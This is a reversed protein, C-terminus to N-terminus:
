RPLAAFLSAVPCRFGAVVEGGDLVDREALLRQGGGRLHVRVTREVPDVVWVARVGTRLYEAVKARVAAARDGASLVEVALDPALEPFPTGLGAAALRERAVFAIDPCLVTDPHRAVLFGTAESFLEGLGHAQVHQGLTVLLRGVLLGHAGSAPMVRRLVGRLLEHPLGPDPVALLDEATLLTTLDM